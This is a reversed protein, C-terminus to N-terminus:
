GDIFIIISDKRYNTTKRKTVSTTKLVTIRRRRDGLTVTSRNFWSVADLHSEVNRSFGGTESQSSGNHDILFGRCARRTTESPRRALRAIFFLSTVVAQRAGYTKPSGM